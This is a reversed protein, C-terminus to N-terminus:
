IIRAILIVLENGKPRWWNWRLGQREQRAVEVPQAAALRPQTRTGINRYWGVRGWVGNLIWIAISGISQRLRCVEKAIM